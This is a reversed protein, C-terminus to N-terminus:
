IDILKQIQLNKILKNLKTIAITESKKRKEKAIYYKKKLSVLILNNKLLM